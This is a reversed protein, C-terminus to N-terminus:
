RIVRSWVMSSPPVPPEGCVVDRWVVRPRRLLLALAGFFGALMAVLREQTLSANVQEALPRFSFALDRNFIGDVLHERRQFEEWQPYTWYSGESGISLLSLEQADRVPLTKLLLNDLISFIATNAGIGLSLVAVTTVIPTARLGRFADRLDRM